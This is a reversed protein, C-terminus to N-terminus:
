PVSMTQYYKHTPQNTVYAQHLLLLHKDIKFGFEIESIIQITDILNRERLNELREEMEDEGSGDEHWKMKFKQVDM